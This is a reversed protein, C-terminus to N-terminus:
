AFLEEGNVAEPEPEDAVQVPRGKAREALIVIMADKKRLQDETLEKKSRNIANLMNTLQATEITGYTCKQTPSYESEAMEITMLASPKLDPQTEPKHGNDSAPQQAPKRQRPDDGDTDTDAYVGLIASLSYRRMYTVVKGMSQALSLGKEEGLPLTISSEIWEGSSHMLITSITVAYDEISPHQTYSLGNEALPGKTAEIVSGLDAYRNKLFPNVADMKAPKMAGQAKALAEALKGISESKNM